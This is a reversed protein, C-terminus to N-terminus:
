EDPEEEHRLPNPGSWEWLIRNSGDPLRQYKIVPGDRIDGVPMGYHEVSLRVTEAWGAAPSQKAWYRYSEAKEEDTRTDAPIPKYM